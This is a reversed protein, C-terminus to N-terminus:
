HFVDLDSVWAYGLSVRRLTGLPGGNYIQGRAETIVPWAAVCEELGVKPMVLGVGLWYGTPIGIGFSLQMEEMTLAHEELVERVVRRLCLDFSEGGPLGTSELMRRKIDTLAMHFELVRALDQIWRSHVKLRSVFVETRYFGDRAHRSVGSM